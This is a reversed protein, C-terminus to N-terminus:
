DERQVYQFAFGLVGAVTIGLGILFLWLGVVVGASTLTFGLATFPPWPSRPPFFDLPGSRERIEGRKRDEPRRGRRRYQVALFFAILSSMLFAVVLAATGAPDHSYLAYPVTVVVFFLAVGVFTVAEAKM